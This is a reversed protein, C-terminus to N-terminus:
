DAPTVKVQYVRSEAAVQYGMKLYVTLASKNEAKVQLQARSLGHDKLYRMAEGLLAYALGKGRYLPLTFVDETSGSSSDPEWYVLVSAALNEGDFASVNVGNAWHPTTIFYQWESLSTPAEPFCANRADLYSRQEAESEMRWHRISFGPPIPSESAANDAGAFGPIPDSLDRTMFFISYAYQAGRSLAYGIREVESPFYQFNLRCQGCQRARELLFAFLRDRVPTPDDLNPLTDIEVWALDNHPLYPAYAILRGSEDVACLVNQGNDFYPSLYLQAPVPERPPYSAAYRTQIETVPQIDDPSMTRTTFQQSM